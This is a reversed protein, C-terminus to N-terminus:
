YILWFCVFFILCFNLVLCGYNRSNVLDGEYKSDFLWDYKTQLWRDKYKLWNEGEHGKQQKYPWIKNELLAQLLTEWDVHEESIHGWGEEM